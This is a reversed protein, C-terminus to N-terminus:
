QASNLERMYKLIIRGYVYMESVKVIESKPQTNDDTGYIIHGEKIILYLM